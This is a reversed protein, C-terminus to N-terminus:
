NWSSKKESQQLKWGSDFQKLTIEIEKTSIENCGFPTEKEGKFVSFPTKEYNIKIIATATKQEKNLAIGVVEVINAKAFVVKGKPGGFGSGANEFSYESIAKETPEFEVITHYNSIPTLRNQYSRSKTMLGLDVLSNFKKLDAEYTNWNSITRKTFIFHCDQAIQEQKCIEIVEEKSISVSTCSYHIIAIFLIILSKKM